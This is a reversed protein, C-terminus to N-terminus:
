WMLSVTVREGKKAKAKALREGMKGHTHSVSKSPTGKPVLADAKPCKEVLAAPLPAVMHDPVVEKTKLSEQRPTEVDDSSPGSLLKKEEEANGTDEEVPDPINSPDFFASGGAGASIMATLARHRRAVKEKYKEEAEKEVHAKLIQHLSGHVDTSVALMRYSGSPHQGDFVAASSETMFRKRRAHVVDVEASSSRRWYCCLLLVLVLALALALVWEAPLEAM